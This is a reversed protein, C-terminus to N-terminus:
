LHALYQSVFAATSYLDHAKETVLHRMRNQRVQDLLIEDLASILGSSSSLIIENGEDFYETALGWYDDVVIPIAGTIASEFLRSKLQPVRTRRADLQHWRGLHAFAGHSRWDPFTSFLHRLHKRTPYLSNHVIACRSQALVQLKEDYTVSRHTVLPHPSGSIVALSYKQAIVSLLRELSPSVMHGAYVVDFVKPINRPVRETDTPIFCHRGERGDKLEFYEASYKDITLVGDWNFEARLYKDAVFFKNPEELDFFLKRGRVARIADPRTVSVILTADSDGVGRLYKDFGFNRVPDYAYNLQCSEPLVRM